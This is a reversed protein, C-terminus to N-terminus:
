DLIKNILSEMKNADIAYMYHYTHVRGNILAVTNEIDKVNCSIKIMSEPNVDFFEKFIQLEDNENIYRLADDFVLLIVKIYRGKLEEILWGLEQKCWKSKLWPKTIMLIMTKCSKMTLKFYEEWNPNSMKYIALEENWDYSTNPDKELSVADIYVYNEGMMDDLQKKIAWALEFGGDMAGFSILVTSKTLDQNIKHM